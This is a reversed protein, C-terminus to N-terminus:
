HVDFTAPFSRAWGPDLLFPSANAVFAPKHKKAYVNVGLNKFLLFLKKM